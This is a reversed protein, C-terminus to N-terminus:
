YRVVYLITDYKPLMENKKSQGIMHLVTLHIPWDSFLNHKTKFSLSIVPNFIQVRILRNFIHGQNTSQFHSGQNTSQFHSGQNTLQFHSDQNTLQFHSDHRSGM